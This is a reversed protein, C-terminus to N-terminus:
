KLEKLLLKFWLVKYNDGTQEDLKNYARNLLSTKGSGWEGNLGIAFPTDPIDNVVLNFLQEAYRDFSFSKSEYDPEDSFVRLPDLIQERDHDSDVSM